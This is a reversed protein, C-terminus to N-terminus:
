DMVVLRKENALFKCHTTLRRLSDLQILESLNKLLLPADDNSLVGQIQTPKPFTM